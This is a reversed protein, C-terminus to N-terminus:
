VFGKCDQQTLQMEHQLLILNNEVYKKFSHHFCIIYKTWSHQIHDKAMPTGYLNDYYLTLADLTVNYIIILLKMWGPQSNNSEDSIKEIEIKRACMTGQTETGAFSKSVESQIGGTMHEGKEPTQAMMVKEEMLNPRLKQHLMRTQCKENGKFTRRAVISMKSPDDMQSSWMYCNNKTRIGEMIVESDKNVILCETKTFIINM